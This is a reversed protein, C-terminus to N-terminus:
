ISLPSALGSQMHSHPVSIFYSHTPLSCSLLPVLQVCLHSEMNLVAGQCSVVSACLSDPHCGPLHITPGTYSTYMHMGQAEEGEAEPSHSLVGLGTHLHGLPGVTGSARKEGTQPPGLWWETCGAGRRPGRGVWTLLPSLAPEGPLPCSATGLAVPPSPAAEQSTEM